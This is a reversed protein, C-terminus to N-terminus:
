KSIYMEPENGMACQLIQVSISMSQTLLKQRGTYLVEFKKRYM